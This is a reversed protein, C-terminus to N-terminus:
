TRFVVVAPDAKILAFGRTGASCASRGTMKTPLPDTATSNEQSPEKILRLIVGFRASIRLIDALFGGRSHRSLQHKQPAYCILPPDAM